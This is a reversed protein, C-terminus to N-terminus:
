RGGRGKRLRLEREIERYARDTDDLLEPRSRLRELALDGENNEMLIYSALADHDPHDMWYKESEWVTGGAFVLSNALKVDRPQLEWVIAASNGALTGLRMYLFENVDKKAIEPKIQGAFELVAGAFKAAALDKDTDVKQHALGLAGQLTIEEAFWANRMEVSTTAIGKTGCQAYYGALRSEESECGGMVLVMACACVM